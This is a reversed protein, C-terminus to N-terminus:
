DGGGPPEAVLDRYAAADLLHDLESPDQMRVRCIWGEGYPDQNVKEPADGLSANVEVVEGSVPAYIEAVAKVSEVTGMVDGARISAGVQPAEVFDTIGVTVHDGDKRAWEHNKTYRLDEPINM